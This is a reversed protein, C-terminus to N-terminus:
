FRRRARMQRQRISFRPLTDFSMHLIGFSLIVITRVNPSRNAFFFFFLSSSVSSHVRANRRHADTLERRDPRLRCSSNESRAREAWEEGGVTAPSVLFIRPYPLPRPYSGYVARIVCNPCKIVESWRSCRPHIVASLHPPPHALCLYLAFPTSSVINCKDVFLTAWSPRSLQHSSNATFNDEVSGKRRFQSLVPMQMGRVKSSTTSM